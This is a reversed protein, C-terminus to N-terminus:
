GPVSRSLFLSYDVGVAMGIILVVESASASVPLRRSVVTLLFLATM